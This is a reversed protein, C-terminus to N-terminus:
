ETSLAEARKLSDQMGGERNRLLWINKQAEICQVSKNRWLRAFSLDDTRNELLARGRQCAASVLRIVQDTERQVVASEGDYQESLRNRFKYAIDQLRNEVKKLSQVTVGEPLIYNKKFLLHFFVSSNSCLTGSLSYLSALDILIEAMEICGGLFVRSVASAIGTNKMNGPSWFEAAGLVFAAYSVSLPQWHGSDGWDALLLGRAGFELGKSAAHRINSTMNQHRGCISNWSSTGPCILFDLGAHKFLRSHEGFPHDAEYGWELAVADQPLEAVLEPYRIIIDGWFEPRRGYKRVLAFVKKLFDIYVRGEGIEAVEAACRGTALEFVEDCGVNFLSSSFCPLLESYLSDLLNLSEPNLPNLAAPEPQVGGWPLPAGGEPLAALHNYESHVLWREMHGFSNQNPTLEVFRSRCYLDLYRVESATLPSSNKWVAVHKEYAFTHEMYLELHNFKLRSLKDVLGYLTKMSPVKDRSIDLMVGRVPFAPGDSIHCCPVKGGSMDLLQFLTLAGYFLAADNGGRVVIEDTKIRLEYFECAFKDDIYFRIGASESSCRWGCGSEKFLEAIRERSLDSGRCCWSGGRIFDFFGSQQSFSSVPPVLDCFLFKRTDSM